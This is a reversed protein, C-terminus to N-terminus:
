LVTEAVQGALHPPPSSLHELGWPHTKNNSVLDRLGSRGTFPQVVSSNKWM